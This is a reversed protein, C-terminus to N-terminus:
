QKSHLIKDRAIIKDFCTYVQSARCARAGHTQRERGAYRKLRHVKTYSSYEKFGSLYFAIYINMSYYCSGWGLDIM